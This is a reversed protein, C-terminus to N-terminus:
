IAAVELEPAAQSVSFGKVEAEVVPISDILSQDDFVLKVRVPIEGSNLKPKSTRMRDARIGRVHTTGSWKYTDAVLVVYFEAVSKSM